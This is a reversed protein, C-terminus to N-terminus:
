KGLLDRASAAIGEPTLGYKKHLGYLPGISAFIDQIGVRKVPVPYENTVAEAVAGGLGGLVNHEEVTLIQGTERAAKIVAETDLPKVTHMNLVRVSFGDKKLEDAALAAYTTVAGTAIITADEGERITVAKGIRFDYDETYLVPEPTRGGLRIYVCGGHEVAAFTAKYAERADAPTIVIANAMARFAALDETTHHTSGGTAMSIGSYVGGITVNLKTYAIDNRVQEYSRYALFPAYGGVVTPLGCSAIGAAMGILNQEAIGVNFARDPYRKFFEVTGTPTAGDATLFVLDPKQAGLDIVAKGFALRTSERKCTAADFPQSITSVPMTMEEKM